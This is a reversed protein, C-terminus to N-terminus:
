RRKKGKGKKAKAPPEAKPPTSAAPLARPAAAAAKRPALRAVVEGIVADVQKAAAPLGHLEYDWRLHARVRLRVEAEPYGLHCLMEARRKAEDLIMAEFKAPFTARYEAPIPTAWWSFSM